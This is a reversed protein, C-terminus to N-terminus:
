RALMTRITQSPRQTTREPQPISRSISCSGSRARDQDHLSAVVKQYGDRESPLVDPTTKVFFLDMARRTEEIREVLSPSAKEVSNLTATAQKLHQRGNSCITRWDVAKGAAVGKDFWHQASLLAASAAAIRSSSETAPPPKPLPAKGAPKTSSAPAASTRQQDEFGGM